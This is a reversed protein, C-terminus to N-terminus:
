PHLEIVIRAGRLAARLANTPGIRGTAPSTFFHWVVQNVQGAERLEVDKAIQEKVFATAATYGVKSEHAVGNAFADVFRAEGSATRFFKPAGGVLDRLITEGMRGTAGIATKETLAAVGRALLKGGTTVASDLLFVDSIALGTNVLGWGWHGTQFDHIAQWGSGIVPVLSWGFSPAGIGGSGGGTATAQAAQSIQGLQMQDLAAQDSRQIALYSADAAALSAAGQGSGNAVALSLDPDFNFVLDVNFSAYVTSDDSSAGGCGPYEICQPDPDQPPVGTEQDGSPDTVTTPVNLAYHYANLSQPNYPDPILEDPSEWRGQSPHYRRSDSVQETGSSVDSSLGAFQNNTTGASWYPVGFADYSVDNYFGRAWTSSVRASNQWDYRDIHNLSLTGGTYVARAAPLQVFLQSFAHTSGTLTAILSGDPAYVYSTTVGAATASVPRNLADYTFTTGTRSILNGNVDWSLTDFTDSVLRGNADYSFPNGSSEYYKNNAQNYTVGSPPWPQSGSKTVNGFPDYAFSGNWNSGCSDSTIRVLDDYQFTCTQSNASNPADTTQLSRLTGNSNWTLNHAVTNKSSTGVTHTETYPTFNAYETYASKDGNGFVVTNVKSDLYYSTSSVLTNGSTDSASNPRGMVDIGYNVTPPIPTPWSGSAWSISQPVGNAYYGESIHGYANYGNSTWLFRDTPRGVPDYCLLEDSAIPGVGLTASATFSPDPFTGSENTLSGWTFADLTSGSKLVLNVTSGSLTATVPLASNGNIANVLATAITTSTSSQGYTVSTQVGNLTISVSGTDYVLSGTGGTMTSGSTAMYSSCSGSSFQCTASLPYDSGTGNAKSTLYVSGATKGNGSNYTSTVLSNQNDNISSSLGAAIQGGSMGSNFNYSGATSDNVIIAALGQSNFQNLAMNITVSGTSPTGTLFSQESGGIAVSATTSTGTTIEVLRGAANTKNCSLNPNSSSDYVLTKPSTVESNLGLFTQSIVRDALDYGFCATGGGNDVTKVPQGVFPRCLGNPDSDYTTTITGSEPSTSTLLRGTNNNDYTFSRVQQTTGKANQTIAKLAGGSYYTYTTLYGAASKSQGCSNSGTQTTVECVSTIEGLGNTETQTSKPNEGAPAPSQTVLVDNANYVYQTTAGPIAGSYAPGTIALPRGLGDYITKTGDITANTTGAAGSYPLTVRSVRGDNDYDTETITFQSCPPLTQCLQSLKVRGMSDFQTLTEESSGSVITRQVDITAPSSGAAATYTYNTVVGAADITSVPRWSPDSGYNASSQNGNEDTITTNKEGTCDYGSYSTTLLPGSTSTKVDVSSLQQGSCEAYAWTTLEGNPGSSSLARGFSDYTRTDVTTLKGGLINQESVVEGFSDGSTGYAYYSGSVASTNGSIFTLNSCVRDMLDYTGFTNSNTINACSSGNWSGYATQVDTDYNTGGVVGGFDYTKVDYVRSYTDRLTVALSPNTVGSVYHWADIETIPYSPASTPSACSTPSTPHYGNYCTYSAAMLTGSSNYSQSAVTSMQPIVFTQPEFSPPVTSITDVTYDGSPAVVKTTSLNAAGSYATHTIKWQGDPTTKTIGSTTGDSCNVGNTGGTYAYTYTAGTPSKISAIRGTITGSHLSNNEYTFSATSLDPYTISTLFSGSYATPVTLGCGFDVNVTYPTFTLKYTPTTGNPGPYELLVVNNQSLSASLVNNGAADVVAGSAQNVVGGSNASWCLNDSASNSHLDSTSYNWCPPITNGVGFNYPTTLGSPTIVESLYEWGSGNWALGVGLSWGDGGTTVKGSCGTAAAAVAHFTGMGDYAGYGVLSPYPPSCNGTNGNASFSFQTSARASSAFSFGGAAFIQNGSGENYNYLYTRSDMNLSAGVPPGYSGKNTLPISVHVTLDGVNVEDVGGGVNIYKQFTPQGLVSGTEQALLQSAGVLAVALTLASLTFVRNLSRSPFRAAFFTSILRDRAPTRGM